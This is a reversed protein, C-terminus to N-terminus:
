PLLRLLRTRIDDRFLVELEIIKGELGDARHHGRIEKIKGDAFEIVEVGLAKIVRGDRPRTGVFLSEASRRLKGTLGGSLPPPVPPIIPSLCIKLTHPDM